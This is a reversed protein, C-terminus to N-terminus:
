DPLRTLRPRWVGLVVNATAVALLIWLSAREAGLSLALDAVSAQGVLASAALAAEQEMPGQVGVLGWEFLLIGSALKAWAWGASQFARNLAIALLGAILTLALSPLFVWKAIDVMAGRMLAYEALQAPPPISGLLVLLCAMAGLLGIAGMTHLFKM